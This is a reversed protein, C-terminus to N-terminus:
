QNDARLPTVKQQPPLCNKLGLVTEPDRHSWVSSAARISTTAERQWCKSHLSWASQDHCPQSTTVLGVARGTLSASGQSLAPPWTELLPLPNRLVLLSEYLHPELSTIWLLTLFGQNPDNEGNFCHHGSPPLPSVVKIRYVSSDM